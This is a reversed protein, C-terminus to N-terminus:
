VKFYDVKNKLSEAMDTIEGSGVSLEETGAATSQILNSMNSISKVIENVAIKQEGMAAKIENSRRKVLDAESNVVENAALQKQMTEFINNMKDGISNVGEIISSIGRVTETVNKRGTIIENENSKVLAEINKISGSTEDALKSIEDAVVAFGRGADGARAAEIAANLSLLNIQDSIDSIINVINTIEGSSDSIKVMSDNMQHLVRNGSQVEELIKGSLASAEQIMEGMEQIMISLDGMLSILSTMKEDQLDAGDAVNDVGASVEEVTATIQEASAAQNQANESFSSITSSMELSSGALQDAVIKVERVTDGIKDIFKNFSEATEGLEDDSSVEMKMSLDGEGEAIDKMRAKLMNIPVLIKKSLYISLAVSVASFAAGVALLLYMLNFFKDIAMNKDIEILFVYQFYSYWKWVGIVEKGKNNVYIATGARNTEFCSKLSEVVQNTRPNILKFSPYGADDKTYEFDKSSLIVNGEVTVLYAYGNEGVDIMSISDDLMNLNVYIIVYGTIDGKEGASEYVPYSIPQISATKDGSSIIHVRCVHIDDTNKIEKYIDSGAFNKTSKDTFYCIRGSKDIIGVKEYVEQDKFVGEVYEKLGDLQGGSIRGAESFQKVTSIVIRNKAIKEANEVRREMWYEIFEFQKLAVERYKEETLDIICNYTTIYSVFIFAALLLVCLGVLILRIRTKMRLRLRFKEFISM